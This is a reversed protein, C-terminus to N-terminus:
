KFFSAELLITLNLLSRNKLSYNQLRLNEIEDEINDIVTDTILQKDAVGMDSIFDLLTNSLM